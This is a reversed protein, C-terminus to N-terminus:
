KNTKLYLLQQLTYRILSDKNTDAEKMFHERMREMEEVREVLDDEPHGQSYLKDLEKIFIANVEDQDWYGNNDLDIKLYLM